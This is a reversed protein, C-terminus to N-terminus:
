QWPSVSRGQVRLVICKLCAIRELNQTGVHKYTPVGCRSRIYYGDQGQTRVFEHVDRQDVVIGAGSM